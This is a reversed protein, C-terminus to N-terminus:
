FTTSPPAFFCKRMGGWRCYWYLGDFSPLAQDKPVIETLSQIYFDRRSTLSVDGVKLRFCDRPGCCLEGALNKYGGKEIWAADDHARALTLTGVTALVVALFQTGSVRM